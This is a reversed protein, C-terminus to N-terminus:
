HPSLGDSLEMYSAYFLIFTTARNHIIAKPTTITGHTGTLQRWLKNNLNTKVMHELTNTKHVMLKISLM